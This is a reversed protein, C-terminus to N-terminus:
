QQGDCIIASLKLRVTVDTYKRRRGMARRHDADKGGAESSFTLHRLVESDLTVCCEFTMGSGLDLARGRSCAM